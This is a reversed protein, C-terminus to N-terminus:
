NEVGYMKKAIEYLYNRAAMGNPVIGKQPGAPGGNVIQSVEYFTAGDAIKTNLNIGPATWFWGASEWAFNAAIYAAGGTMIPNNGNKDLEILGEKLMQDAFAQYNNKGTLQM